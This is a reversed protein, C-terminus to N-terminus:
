NHFSDDPQINNDWLEWVNDCFQEHIRCSVYSCDLRYDRSIGDSETCSANLLTFEPLVQYYQFLQGLGVQNSEILALCDSDFVHVVSSAVCFTQNLVQLEVLRTFTAMVNPSNITANSEEKSIKDFQRVVVQVPADYYSSVLRQVNGNATLLLRDLPGTINYRSALSLATTTTNSQNNYQDNSSAFSSKMIDGLSTELLSLSPANDTFAAATTNNVLQQEEHQQELCTSNTQAQSSGVFRSTTTTRRSEFRQPALFGHQHKSALWAHGGHCLVGLIAMAAAQRRSRRKTMNLLSAELLPPLRSSAFHHPPNSHPFGQTGSLTTDSVLIM